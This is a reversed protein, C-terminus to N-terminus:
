ESWDLEAWMVTEGSEDSVGIGKCDKLPLAATLTIDVDGEEPTWFTGAAVRDGGSRALWVNYVSKEPLGAAALEIRTGWSEYTLEASSVVGPPVSSFDLNAHPAPDRIVLYLGIAAVVAAIGLVSRARTRIRSRRTDRREEEIRSLIANQLRSPPAPRSDGSRLPDALALSRAVEGLEAAEARCDPCGDLHALLATRRRDDLTGLVYAGIAERYRRHEDM